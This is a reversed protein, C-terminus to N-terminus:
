NTKIESTKVKVVSSKFNRKEIQQYGTVVIEGISEAEEELVVVLAPQNKKYPIDKTKMGVFSFRLRVSDREPVRLLFDGDIGTATGLQTGVILVTVGPLPDGNKDKVVGRIEMENNAQQVPNKGEFRVMIINDRFTYTFGTGEFVRDLVSKVSEEKAKVTLKNLLETQETNFIFHLNTQRQIESFLTKISVGQLDLNVKEQQAFSNASLSFTFCCMLFIFLKM